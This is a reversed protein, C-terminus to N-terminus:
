LKVLLLVGGHNNKMNRLIQVFPVLNRLADDLIDYSQEKTIVEHLMTM